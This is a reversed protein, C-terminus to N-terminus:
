TIHIETPASDTTGGLLLISQAPWLGNFYVDIGAGLLLLEQKLQGRLLVSFAFRPSRGNLLIRMLLPHNGCARNDMPVARKDM